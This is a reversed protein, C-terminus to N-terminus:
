REGGDHFHQLEDALDGLLTAIEKNGRALDEGLGETLCAKASRSMERSWERAKRILRARRQDDTEDDSM